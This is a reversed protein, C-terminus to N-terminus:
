YGGGGYPGSGGSNSSGSSSTGMVPAGTASVAYWTGGFTKIGEGNVDGPKADQIYTYLPHGAVTVITGGTLTKTTGTAAAIKTAGAPTVPPWYQLCSASCNSHNHGDSTLIYVTMGKDNVLVKGLSTSAVHLTASSTATNSGGGGGSGTATGSSSGSGCASLTLTSIAAIALAAPIKMDDEKSTSL